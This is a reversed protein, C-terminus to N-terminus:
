HYKIEITRKAPEKCLMCGLCNGKCAHNKGSYEEVAVVKNDLYFGSGNIILNPCDGSVGYYLDRRATYGYFIVKRNFRGRLLRGVKGAIYKLKAVDFQTYFDGSENFRIYKIGKHKLLAEYIDGAIREGKSERWYKGQRDRYPKTQAYQKEAKLAYCKKGANTIECIGRAKSPCDTASGMNFILTDKGIKHNGIKYEFKDINM